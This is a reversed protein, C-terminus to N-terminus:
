EAQRFVIKDFRHRRGANLRALIHREMMRLEMLWASSRVDVFLTGRDFGVPEAVRAIQPGVLEEWRPIVSAREVGEGLGLASLLDSVLAGVRLPAGAREGSM